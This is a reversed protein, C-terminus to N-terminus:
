GWMLTTHLPTVSLYSMSTASYGNDLVVQRGTYMCLRSESLSHTYMCVDNEHNLPFGLNREPFLIFLIGSIM